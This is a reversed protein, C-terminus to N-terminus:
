EKMTPTKSVKGAQTSVDKLRPYWGETAKTHTWQPMLRMRSPGLSPRGYSSTECRLEDRNVTWAGTATAFRGKEKILSKRMSIRFGKGLPSICMQHFWLWLAISSQTNTELRNKRGAEWLQSWAAAQVQPDWKPTVKSSYVHYSSFASTPLQREHEWEQLTIIRLLTAQVTSGLSRLSAFWWM